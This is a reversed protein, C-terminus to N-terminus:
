AVPEIQLISGAFSIVFIINQVEKDGNTKHRRGHHFVM